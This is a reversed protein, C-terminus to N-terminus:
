STRFIWKQFPFQDKKGKLYIHQREKREHLYTTKGRNGVIIKGSKVIYCYCPPHERADTM